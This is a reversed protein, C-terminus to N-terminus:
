DPNPNQSGVDGKLTHNAGCSRGKLKSLFGTTPYTLLRADVLFPRPVAPGCRAIVLLTRQPLRWKEVTCGLTEKCRWATLTNKLWLVLGIYIYIHIYIYIYVYIYIYTYLCTYGCVCM